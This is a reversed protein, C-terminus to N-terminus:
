KIVPRETFLENQKGQIETNGEAAGRPFMSIRQFCFSSNGEPCTMLHKSIHSAGCSHSTLGPVPHLGIELLTFSLYSKREKNPDM